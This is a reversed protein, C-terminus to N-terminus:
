SRLGRIAALDYDVRRSLGVRGTGAGVAARGVTRLATGGAPETIIADPRGAASQVFQLLQQRQNIPDNNADIIEVDVGLRRATERAAAEQEQQYDNDRTTLAVLFRFKKM